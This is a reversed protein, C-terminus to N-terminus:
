FSNVVRRDGTAMQRTMTEDRDVWLGGLREDPHGAGKGPPQSSARGETPRAWCIRDLRESAM